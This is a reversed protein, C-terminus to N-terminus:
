IEVKKVNDLMKIKEVLEKECEDMLELKSELSLNKNAEFSYTIKLEFEGNITVDDQPDNVNM